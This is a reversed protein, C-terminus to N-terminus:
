HRMTARSTSMIGPSIGIEHWDDSTSTAVMAKQLALTLRGAL